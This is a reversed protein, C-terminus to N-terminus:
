ELSDMARRAAADIEQMIRPGRRKMVDDFWHGPGFQQSVWANRNGAVPHRFTKGSNTLKLLTQQDAPLYKGDVRIRVGTRFGSYTIKRTIGRSINKRLGTHKPLRGSATTNHASRRSGGGGATGKADLSLIAAKLEREADATASKIARNLEKRVEKPARRLRGALENFGPGPTVDVDM